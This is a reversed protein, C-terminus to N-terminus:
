QGESEALAIAKTLADVVEAHTRGYSDNFGILSRSVWKDDAEEAIVRQLYGTAADCSDNFFRGVGDGSAAIVAGNLCFATASRDGSSCGSGDALRGFSGRTWKDPTAIKELAAKLVESAKM